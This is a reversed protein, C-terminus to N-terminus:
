LFGEENWEMGERWASSGLFVTLVPLAVYGCTRDSFDEHAHAYKNFSTVIGKRQKVM